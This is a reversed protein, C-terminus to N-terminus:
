DRPVTAAQCGLTQRLREAAGWLWAAQTPMKDLDATAGLGVLYESMGQRPKAIQFVLKTRLIFSEQFHAPLRGFQLAQGALVL